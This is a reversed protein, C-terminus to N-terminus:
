ARIDRIQITKMPSIGFKEAYALAKKELDHDNLVDPCHADCGLVVDNGVEGAVKWFDECPYNRGDMLGLFNIELPIGLAKAGKCFRLMEERYFERDGVYNVLDPHAIYSFKGTGAGELVQNVYQALRENEETRGGSYVGDFENHLFHQGLILYDCEYQCINNLMEQFCAPYYEAEFGILVQIRGAYEKRLALLEEVYGATEEVGMRFNSTHGNGFPYPVHDSFGLIKIGGKIAQEVYESPSGKAHNCRPTHTHYNAYM